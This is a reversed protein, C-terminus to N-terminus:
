IDDACNVGVVNRDSLFLLHDKGEGCGDCERVEAGGRYIGEKGRNDEADSLAVCLFFHDTISEVAEAQENKSGDGGSPRHPEQSM